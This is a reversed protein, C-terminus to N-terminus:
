LNQPTINFVEYFDAGNTNEPLPLLEVQQLSVREAFIQVDHIIVTQFHDHDVRIDVVSFPVTGDSQAEQSLAFDPAGVELSETKGNEDTTRYGILDSSQGNAQTVTVRTDAVPILQDSAYTQVVLWGNQM